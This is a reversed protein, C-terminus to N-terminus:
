NDAGVPIVLTIWHEEEAGGENTGSLFGPTRTSEDCRSRPSPSM